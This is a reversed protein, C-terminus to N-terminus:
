QEQLTLVVSYIATPGRQGDLWGLDEGNLPSSYNYVLFDGGGKPVATPFCTDGRSPLDIVFEISMGYPDIQWVACRKPRDWYDLSYQFFQEEPSLHDYGLDFNGTESVNRRGILFPVGEHMFVLPSDYKKPDAVCTWEGLADPRARCIKSGFGAEDGAENRGVAVLSGDELFAFDTESVGGELVVPQDPIVPEWTTGDETTLWHVKIVKDDSGYIDGGGMYGILYAVDDIVRARWPMFGELYSWEDASWNGEGDRASVKMGQPVFATPDRGLVAFYLILRGELAMFEPERLDTELFFTHEYDWTEGDDASSVVHIRAEPSAFHDPATRFALFLRGDFEIIDLNNNGAQTEAEDPLSSSPVVRVPDSLSATFAPLEPPPMDEAAADQGADTEADEDAPGSDPCGTGAPALLLIIAAARGAWAMCGRSVMKKLATAM